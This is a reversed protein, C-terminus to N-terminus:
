KSRQRKVARLSAVAAGFSSDAVNSPFSQSNNRSSTADARTSQKPEVGIVEPHRILISGIIGGITNVFM